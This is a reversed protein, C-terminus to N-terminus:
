PQTVELAYYWRAWSDLAAEEAATPRAACIVWLAISADAAAGSGLCGCGLGITQVQTTLATAGGGTYQVGDVVLHATTGETWTKVIHPKTDAVPGTVTWVGNFAGVNITPHTVAIAGLGVFANGIEGLAQDTGPTLSRARFVMYMWPRTGGAIPDPLGGRQWYRAPTRTSQYVPQDGFYGPDPAVAPANVGTLTILGKQGVAAAASAGASGIWYELTNLPLPPSATPPNYSGDAALAWEGANFGRPSSPVPDPGPAFRFATDTLPWTMQFAVGAPKAQGLMYAIQYGQHPTADGGLRMVFAAPFYEELAITDPPAVLTRAIALLERTMGSSRLVMNRASIWLRYTDDDRGERPQGVIDGLVDLQAGEATELSREVLLQWLADEVEQVEALWSELLASTRPKRYREILREVGRSAHDPDHTLTM